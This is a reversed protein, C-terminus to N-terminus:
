ERPQEAIAGIFNFFIDIRQSRNKGRGGNGQHVVIRDIFVRVTESTRETIDTYKRVLELFRTINTSRENETAVIGVLDATRARLHAQEVEYNAYLKDFRDNPLRGTANDEYLKRIITDIEIIRQEAKELECKASRLESDAVREHTKEVLSLFEDERERAFEIAKRVEGLILPEIYHRPTNHMSCERYGPRSSDYTQCVYYQLNTSSNRYVRLRKGCDACYLIGNLPLAEGTKTLKRKTSERLRQVQEWTEMDVVSEHTNETVIWKDRENPSSRKTKYSKKYTRGCVTHGLYEM